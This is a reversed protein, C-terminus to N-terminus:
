NCYFNKILFLSIQYNIKIRLCSNSIIAVARATYDLIAAFLSRYSSILYRKLMYKNKM